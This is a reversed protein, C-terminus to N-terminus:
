SLDIVLNEVGLDNQGELFLSILQLHSRSSEPAINATRKGTLERFGHEFRIAGYLSVLYRDHVKISRGADTFVRLQLLRPAVFGASRAIRGLTSVTENIPRKLHDERVWAFAAQSRGAVAVRLMDHLVTQRDRDCPDLYPDVFHIEPSAMLLTRSVRVYEAPRAAVREAATPPLDLEDLSPFAGASLRSVVVGDFLPPAAQARAVNQLWTDREEYAVDSRRVLARTEKARRLLTKAREQELETWASIHTYLLQEWQKAPYTALYRGTAPGFKELLHKLEFATDCTAPEAAFRENM